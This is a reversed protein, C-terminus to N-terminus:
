RRPPLTRPVVLCEVRAEFALPFHFVVKLDIASILLCLRAQHRPAWM